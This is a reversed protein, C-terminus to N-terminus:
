IIQEKIKLIDIITTIIMLSSIKFMTQISIIQALWGALISGVTLGLTFMAQLLTSGVNVDKGDVLDSLLATEPAVLLGWAFGFLAM